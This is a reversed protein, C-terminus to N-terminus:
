VVEAAVGRWEGVLQGGEGAAPRGAAAQQAAATPHDPGGDSRGVDLSPGVGLRPDTSDPEDVSQLRRHGRHLGPNVPRGDVTVGVRRGGGVVQPARPPATPPRSAVRVDDAVVLQVRPDLLVALQPVM